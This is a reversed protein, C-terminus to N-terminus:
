IHIANRNSRTNSNRTSFLSMKKGKTYKMTTNSKRKQTLRSWFTSPPQRRKQQHSKNSQTLRLKLKSSKPRISAKTPGIKTKICEFVKDMFISKMGTFGALSLNNQNAIEFIKNYKGQNINKFIEKNIKNSNTIVSNCLGNFYRLTAPDISDAADISLKHIKGNIIYSKIHHLRDFIIKNEHLLLCYEFLSYNITNLKEFTMDNILNQIFIYFEINNPIFNNPLEPLILGEDIIHYFSDRGESYGVFSYEYKELLEFLFYIISINKEFLDSNNNLKNFPINFYTDSKKIKYKSIISKVINNFISEIKDMNNPSGGGRIHHFQTVDNINVVKNFLITKNMNNIIDNIVKDAYYSMNNYKIKLKHKSLRNNYYIKLVNVGVRIRCIFFNENLDFIDNTVMVSERIVNGMNDSISKIEQLKTTITENNIGNYENDIENNKTIRLNYENDNEFENHILLEEDVIEQKTYYYENEAIQDGNGIFLINSYKDSNSYYKYTLKDLERDKKSFGDYMNKFFADKYIARRKDQALFYTIHLMIFPDKCFTYIYDAKNISPDNKQIGGKYIHKTSISKTPNSIINKSGGVLLDEDNGSIRRPDYLITHTGLNLIAPRKNIIAYSFLMRDHTVLVAPQSVNNGNIINSNSYQKFSMKNLERVSAARGQKVDSLRKRAYYMTYLKLLDNYTNDIITTNFTTYFGTRDQISTIFVDTNIENNIATIEKRIATKIYDISNSHRKGTNSIIRNTTTYTNGNLIYEYHADVSLNNQNLNSYSVKVNGKEDMTNRKDTDSGLEEIYFNDQGFINVINDIKTVPAPDAITEATYLICFNAPRPNNNDTRALQIINFLNLQMDVILKIKDNFLPDKYEKFFDSIADYANLITSIDSMIDVGCIYIAEKEHYINGISFYNELSNQDLSRPIRNLYSYKDQILNNPYQTSLEPYGGKLLYTFGFKITKKISQNDRVNTECDIFDNKFDHLSDFFGIANQDSYMNEPVNPDVNNGNFLAITKDDIFRDSMPYFPAFSTDENGEALFTTYANMTYKAGSRFTM